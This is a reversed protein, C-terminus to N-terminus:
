MANSGKGAKEIEQESLFMIPRTETRIKNVLEKDFILGLDTINDPEFASLVVEILSGNLDTTCLAKNLNTITYEWQIKSEPKKAEALFKVTLASQYLNVFDFEFQLFEILEPEIEIIYDLFHKQSFEEIKQM